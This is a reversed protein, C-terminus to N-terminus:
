ITYRGARTNSPLNYVWVLARAHGAGVDAQALLADQFVGAVLRRQDPQGRAGDVFRGLGINAGTVLIVKGALSPIDQEPNFPLSKGFFM